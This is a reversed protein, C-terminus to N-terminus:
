VEIGNARLYGKVEDLDELGEDFVAKYFFYGSNMPTRGQENILAIKLAVIRERLAPTMRAQFRYMDAM